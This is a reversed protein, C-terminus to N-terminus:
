RIEFGPAVSPLSRSQKMNSSSTLIVFVVKRVSDNLAHQKPSALVNRADVSRIREKLKKNKLMKTIRGSLDLDLSFLPSADTKQQTNECTNALASHTPVM